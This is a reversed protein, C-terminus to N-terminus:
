KLGGFMKLGAVGRGSNKKAKNVLVKLENAPVLYCRQRDVPDARSLVGLVTGEDNVCPGGSHGSITPCMIVIEERPSFGGSSSSSSDLSGNSHDDAESMKFQKCIYGKAFDASRNVHEGQKLIGEGGQNFGLIRVTEELEYRRSMKLATLQERHINVAREPQGGVQTDSDVDAEMRTTIRLVCADVNHIDEAVIEAFYRFVATDGGKEGKSEPIVGIVAKANKIGFYPIGFNRGEEMQFLIHGATVVLGHKKDAIFGSGVNRVTQTDADWLGVVVVSPLMDRVLKKPTGERSSNEAKPLAAPRCTGCILNSDVRHGRMCRVLSSGSEAAARVSDWSWTSAGSPHAHALCEPCVVQRDVNTCHAVSAKISDLVVSYGGKWLKLGHSGVQGKGSIILRQMNSGMADSAVCHPSSQDAIAVFIEVFSERLENGDPFVCGIKILLSSKWCMIQHIKIHGIAEGDHSSVFETLSNQTFPYTESRRPSQHTRSSVTHSFEYLDRLLAVTVHEMLGLPAGDRFLWSHSLTTMWSDSSKYTWVDRTEAQSLLSPVFYVNDPSHWRDIDLPLFVGTHVLLRELFGFMTSETTSNELLESSRDAAERMFSMSQWLMQTDTSSLLPCSSSSTSFTQTVHNEPFQQDSYICQMNMFRRTEALERKLDNRLICSLASVLWKRSLIVYHSLYDGGFYLLEGVSSLFHLADMVDEVTLVDTLEAMLHDVLVLKHDQKLRRTTELVHITGPPVPTGVHDFVSHSSDTAIALITEQLLDMGMNTDLSVCIMTEAGMLVKPPVLDDPLLRQTYDMLLVQMTDCRRKAELPSMDVPVLAIPLIASHAGRRAVCDVWSLVRDEIDTQLARDAQRNGEERVYENENDEEHDDEEDSSDDDGLSARRHQYTKRNNAALDWVLLYLSKDTFFLSQTGPHAGFNASGSSSQKDEGDSNGNGVSASSASAAGQVDWITFKVQEKNEPTWSHVDVGLGMKRKRSKKTSERLRLARALGSKDVNPAGVMVLKLIDNHINGQDKSTAMTLAVSAGDSKLKQLSAPPPPWLPAYSLQDQQEQEQQEEHEISTTSAELCDLDQAFIEGARHLMTDVCPGDQKDVKYDADRPVMSTPYLGGGGGEYDIKKDYKDYDDLRDELYAEATAVLMDTDPTLVGAELLQDANGIFSAEAAISATRLNNDAHLLSIRPPLLPPFQTTTASAASATSAAASTLTTVTTTVATAAGAPVLGVVVLSPSASSSELTTTTTPLSPHDVVGLLPTQASPENELSPPDRSLEIDRLWVLRKKRKYPQKSQQKRGPSETVSSSSASPPSPITSDVLSRESSAQTLLHHPQSQLQLQQQSQLQLPLPPAIQSSSLAANASAMNAINAHQQEQEEEEEITPATFSQKLHGFLKKKLVKKKKIWKKLGRVGKRMRSSQCNKRHNQFSSSDYYEEEYSHGRSRGDGNQVQQSAWYDMEEQEMANSIHSPIAVLDGDILVFESSNFCATDDNNNDEQLLNLSRVTATAPSSSENEMRSLLRRSTENGNPSNGGTSSEPVVASAYIQSHVHDRIEDVTSRVFNSVFTAVPYSFVKNSSASPTCQTDRESVSGGVNASTMCENLVVASHATAVVPSNQQQQRQQQQGGESNWDRLLSPRHTIAIDTMEATAATATPATATPATATAAVELLNELTPPPTTITNMSVATIMITATVSSSLSISYLICTRDDWLLFLAVNEDTSRSIFRTKSRTRVTRPCYPLFSSMEYDMLLREQRRSHFDLCKKESKVGYVSSSNPAHVHTHIHVYKYTYAYRCLNFTTTSSRTSTAQVRVM